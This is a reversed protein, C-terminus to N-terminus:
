SVTPRPVDMAATRNAHAEVPQIRAWLIREFGNLLTEVSVVVIVGLAAAFLGRWVWRQAHYCAIVLPIKSLAVVAMMTLPLSGILVDALLQGLREAATGAAAAAYAAWATALAIALCILAEVSDLAWAGILLKAGSRAWGAHHSARPGGDIDPGAM